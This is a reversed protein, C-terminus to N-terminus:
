EVRPPEGADYGGGAPAAVVVEAPPEPLPPQIPEPRRRRPQRPVVPETPPAPAQAVSSTVPPEALVVLFGAQVAAMTRSDGPVDYIAGPVVSTVRGDLLRLSPLGRLARVKM